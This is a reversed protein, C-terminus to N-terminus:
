QEMRHDAAARQNENHAQQSEQRVTLGSLVNWFTEGGTKESAMNVEWTM